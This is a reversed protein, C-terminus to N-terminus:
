ELLLRQYLCPEELPVRNRRMASATPTLNVTVQEVVFFLFSNSLCLRGLKRFVKSSTKLVSCQHRIWPGSSQTVSVKSSSAHNHSPVPNPITWPSNTTNAPRASGHCSRARRRASRYCPRAQRALQGTDRGLEGTLRGAVGGHEGASSARTVASGAPSEVPLVAM